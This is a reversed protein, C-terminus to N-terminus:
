TTARSSSMRGPTHAPPPAAHAGPRSDGPVWFRPSPIAAAKQATLAELCRAAHRALIEMVEPWPSPVLHEAGDGYSDAYLVAVVRGGVLVPVAFGMRDAPLEAFDPGGAAGQRTAAPRATAVAIGVVGGQNPGLDVSKPKTDRDGFGSLIWGTLRDHRLVLVAARGAEKAAARGLVDLVESLTSAGDLGRISDLLRAFGAMVSERERVHADAVLRQMRDASNVEAEDLRRQWREDAGALADQLRQEAESTLRQADRAALRREVDRADAVEDDRLARWRAETEEAQRRLEDVAEDAAARRAAHVSADREDAAAARASQIAADREEALNTAIQAVLARLDQTLRATVDTLAADATSRIRDDPTM